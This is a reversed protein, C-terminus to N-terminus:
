KSEAVTMGNWQDGPPAKSFRRYREILTMSPGDQAKDFRRTASLALISRAPL